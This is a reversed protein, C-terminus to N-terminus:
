ANKKFRVIKRFVAVLFKAEINKVKLKKNNHFNSKSQTLFNTEFNNKM